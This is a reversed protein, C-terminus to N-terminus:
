KRSYTNINGLATFQGNYRCIFNYPAEVIKDFDYSLKYLKYFSGISYESFLQILSTFPITAPNELCLTFQQEDFLRYYFIAFTFLKVTKTVGLQFVNTM